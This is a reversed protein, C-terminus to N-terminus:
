IGIITKAISPIAKALIAIIFGVLAMLIYQRGSTVKETAGGATVITFAGLLVMIVAVGMLIVFMWDTVTYITNLICFMGWKPASASCYTGVCRAAATSAPAAVTGATCTVTDVTVEKRLTCCEKMGEQASIVVPVLLISLFSLLILATLIKKM